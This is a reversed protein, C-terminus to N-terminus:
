EETMESYNIGPLSYDFASNTPVIICVEGKSPTYTSAITSWITQNNKNTNVVIYENSLKFDVGELM